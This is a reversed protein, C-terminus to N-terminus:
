IILDGSNLTAGAAIKVAIAFEGEDFAGNHNADIGVYSYNIGGVNQNDLVLLENLAFDLGSIDIKDQGQQFDTIVDEPKGATFRSDDTSIFIFFDQGLGGTLQDKGEGGYIFDNGNGGNILDDGGRGSVLDNGDGGNLSNALHSGYIDDDYKTGIVGEVNELQEPWGQPHPIVHGRDDTFNSYAGFYGQGNSNADIFGTGLDIRLGMSGKVAVTDFGDGGDAYDESGDIEMYDDGDGGLLTDDGGGGKLVDDGDLGGLTNDKHNGILTDDLQSGYVDEIRTLTDGEATGFHGKGTVLSVQVGVTSDEYTVGDRGEGGDIEDAGGGGKIIDNGGGAKIIDKGDNGVIQDAGDTVGDSYDLTEGSKKKGIVLAMNRERANEPELAWGRMQRTMNPNPEINGNFM